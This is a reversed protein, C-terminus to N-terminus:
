GQGGDVKWGDRREGTRERRRKREKVFEGKDDLSNEGSNKISTSVGFNIVLTDSVYGIQFSYSASKVIYTVINQTFRQFFNVQM